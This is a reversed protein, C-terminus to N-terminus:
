PVPTTQEERRRVPIISTTYIDVDEIQLPERWQAEDRDLAVKLMM